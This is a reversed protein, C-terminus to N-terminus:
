TGYKQGASPITTKTFVIAGGFRPSLSTAVVIQPISTQVLKPANPLGHYAVVYILVDFSYSSKLPYGAVPTLLSFYRHTPVTTTQLLSSCIAGASSPSPKNRDEVSTGTFIYVWAGEKSYRYQKERLEWRTLVQLRKDGSSTPPTKNQWTGPGQSESIINVRM